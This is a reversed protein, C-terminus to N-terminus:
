GSLGVLAAWDGKAQRLDTEGVLLYAWRPSGSRLGDNAYTAWRRAAHRKARVDVAALERDAKVEVLYHDTNKQVVVFDPEYRNGGETWVIPLDGQLLRVWVDVTDSDDVMLAFDRETSSDFWAMAYLSRKWGEFAQGRVPLARPDPNVPRTNVRSAGLNVLDVIPDLIPASLQKRYERMVIQALRAGARELYAALLEDAGGNLGEMFADVIRQAARTQTGDDARSAIVPLALLTDRLQNRLESAPILSGQGHVVDVATRTITRVVKLGTSPDTVVTAGVLVRRLETQPDAHLRRGLDKFPEEDHVDSLRFIVPRPVVRVRPVPVQRAAALVPAALAEEQNGVKVREDATVIVPTPATAPRPSTEDENENATLPSQSRSGDKLGAEVDTNERVVVDNGHADKQLVARTTYDIFQAALIGRKALLDEYKEHAIIELTDLMEVNQYKGWPMRLGRGLVQETLIASVSPQTSLLVYVNKVDWGEKLMAVSVIVRIPSSPHEVASLRLLAAPEESEKVNSHVVLVADRHRGERFADSRVLEAIEDAESTNSAVVLLVPNIAPLANAAAWENAISRKYDLLVLGDLLKTTLDHKDDKRGVIVPTKVFREAIAAALPYRFIIKDRPTLRHPTATLGVLAWPNLARVADSFKPGYYLHHEDAFVVLPKAQQLREYFGAGLGEQFKHTRRGQTTDPRILSQVSFAYVKVVSDDDMASAATPSDFTDATILCVPVTLREIISRAGGPTFQDITKNLVVRSPAIVVFDRIGHSRALYEVGAVIVYTKGVGTASDIVGEFSDIRRDQRYHRWLEYAITEVAAKNPPRLDLAADIEDLLANDLPESDDAWTM